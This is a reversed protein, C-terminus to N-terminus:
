GAAKWAAKLWRLVAPDIEKTSGIGRSRRPDEEGAEGPPFMRSRRIGVYTKCVTLTVDKGLKWGARVLEDHIPRLAPKDGSYMADLLAGEDGYEGASVKAAPEERSALKQKKAM